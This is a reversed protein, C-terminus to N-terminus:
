NECEEIQEVGHYGTRAYIISNLAETNYGNINTVLRCEDETAIMNETIYDWIKDEQNKM